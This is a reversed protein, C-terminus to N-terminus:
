VLSPVTSALKCNLYSKSALVVGCGEATDIPVPLMGANYLEPIYAVETYPCDPIGNTLCCTTPEPKVTATFTVSSLM